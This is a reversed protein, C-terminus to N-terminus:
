KSGEFNGSWNYICNEADGRNCGRQSRWVLRSFINSSQWINVHWCISDTSSIQWQSWKTYRVKMCRRILQYLSSEDVSNFTQEETVKPIKYVLSHVFRHFYFATHKRRPSEPADSIYIGVNRLVRVTGDENRGIFISCLTGFRRCVFNLRRPIVWFFGYLMWFVDFTQFWSFTILKLFSLQNTQLQAMVQTYQLGLRYSHWWTRTDCNLDTATGDSAHIATWTQLQAMVQTYQLGLRYSHWWKRTNCNLDTATGDSTQIATWTQLKAIVQTYQLGPSYSDWWM